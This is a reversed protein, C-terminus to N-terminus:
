NGIPDGPPVALPTVPKRPEAPRALFKEIEEALWRNHAAADGTAVTRKLTAHLVRLSENAIARVQSRANTNSALDM